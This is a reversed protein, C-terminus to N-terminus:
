RKWATRGTLTVRVIKDDLRRSTAAVDATLRALEDGVPLGEIRLRDVSPGMEGAPEYRALDIPQLELLGRLIADDANAFASATDPLKVELFSFDKGVEFSGLRNALGLIQAPGLTTAYLAESPTAYKSRGAHVRLFQVMENLLSTTPSAGVDTCLAFPIRRQMVEDLPMVGSGLLTNSVPCHAIAVGTANPGTALALLDWEDQTMQICHALIAAQDLLGDRRYVDTYSAADPYLSETWAKEAHQENLHTQMRLHFKRALAVGRKRLPTDVAGAFRDTVILRRGFDRALEAVDRELMADDTRLFEPCNREMLVLGVSWEPALTALAARTAAAHVTMYAAGGITGHALTDERFAVVIEETATPDACRGEAPFVNRNLGALLPGGPPNGVVGDLFRGRIPHQPIHIHADLLPPLLLGDAPRAQEAASGLRAAVDTWAGAAVIRSAADGAIAGDAFYQVRGDRQPNLLPGRVFQV